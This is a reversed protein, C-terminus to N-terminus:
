TSELSLLVKHVNQGDSKFVEQFNFKPIEAEASRTSIENTITQRHTAVHLYEESKVHNLRASGAGVRDRRRWVFTRRLSSTITSNSTTWKDVLLALAEEEVASLGTRPIGL